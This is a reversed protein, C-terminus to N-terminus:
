QKKSERMIIVPILWCTYDRIPNGPNYGGTRKGSEQVQNRPQVYGRQSGARPTGVLQRWTCKNTKPIDEANELAYSYVEVGEEILMEVLKVTRLDGGIISIKNIM